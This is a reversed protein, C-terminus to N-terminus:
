RGSTEALSPRIMDEILRRWASLTDSLMYADARNGPRIMTAPDGQALLAAAMQEPDHPEVLRGFRGHDLVDAANGASIAAVVPVGCAIAEILVNAAGEWLSPLAFVDARALWPFVNEVRGPLDVSDAIGLAAARTMLQARADDRSEGLIILRAPRTRRAIAVAELLIGFNKQRALRGIGLVVTHPGGLWPHDVPEAMRKRVAELDIGNVITSVRGRNAAAAFAPVGLLAPAVCVIHDADAALLRSTV